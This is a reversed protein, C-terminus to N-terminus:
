PRAVMLLYGLPLAVGDNDEYQKLEAVIEGLFEDRRGEPVKSIAARSSLSGAAFADVFRAVSPFRAAISGTRIEVSRFGAESAFERVRRPDGLSYAKHIVAAEINRRELARALALQGKCEQLSTWVVALLRGDPRMVRRMERLGEAADPLYQLGQLCFVVDFIGSELPMNQASACHWDVTVGPVAPVLSEAVAIMAPDLDVGTIAGHPTVRPAALRTVIGTGCAVDLVKEGPRLMALEVAAEALTRNLTPVLYQEYAVAASTDIQKNM